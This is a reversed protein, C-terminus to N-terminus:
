EPTNGEIDEPFVTRGVYPLCRSLNLMTNVVEIELLDIATNLTNQFTVIQMSGSQKLDVIISPEKGWLVKMKDIQQKYRVDEDLKKLKEIPVVCELLFLRAQEWTMRQDINGKFISAFRGEVKEHGLLEKIATKKRYKKLVDTIEKSYIQVFNPLLKEMGIDFQVTQSEFMALPMIDTLYFYKKMESWAASFSDIKKNKGVDKCIEKCLTEIRRKVTSIDKAFFCNDAKLLSRISNLPAALEVPLREETLITEVGATGWALNAMAEYLKVTQVRDLRYGLALWYAISDPNIALLSFPAATITKENPNEGFLYYSCTPFVDVQQPPEDKVASQIIKENGTTVTEWISRIRQCYLQTILSVQQRQERSLKTKEWFLNKDDDLLTAGQNRKQKLLKNQIDRIIMVPALPFLKARQACHRILSSSVTVQSPHELDATTGIILNLRECYELCVGAIKKELSDLKALSIKARESPTPEHGLKGRSTKWYIDFLQMQVQHQILDDYIKIIEKRYEKWDKRRSKEENQSSSAKKDESDSCDFPYEGFILDPRICCVTLQQLLREQKDPETCDRAESLIGLLVHLYIDNGSSKDPLFDKFPHNEKEFMQLGFQAELEALLKKKEGKAEDSFPLLNNEEVSFYRKM